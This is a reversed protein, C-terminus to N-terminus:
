DRERRRAARQRGIGDCSKVGRGIGVLGVRGIVDAHRSLNRCEADSVAQHRWFSDRGAM